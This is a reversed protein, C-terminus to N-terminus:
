QLINQHFVVIILYKRQLDEAHNEHQSKDEINDEDHMIDVLVDNAEPHLLFQDNSKIYKYEHTSQGSYRLKTCPCQMWLVSKKWIFIDEDEVYVHKCKGQQNTNLQSKDKCHM